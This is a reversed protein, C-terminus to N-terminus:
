DPNVLASLDGDEASLEWAMVGLLGRERAYDVKGQISEADDYSIVVRQSESVLYPVGADADWYRTWGSAGVYHDRLDEYDFVGSEWTGDPLGTFHQGLGEAGGYGRGYYPLGLTLKEAPVGADLYAQVADDVSLGDSAYLPANHGTTSEWGGHLDYTMLNIWDLPGALDPIDMNEITTPGAPAAITLLHGVGALDLQDRVRHLLLTYNEKDAARGADLGGSVPYEWDIDLGDFGHLLMFDVCSEAFLQRGSESAALESFPESLTWGGVSLLTKLDPRSAKLDELQQINGGDKYLAAWSDNFACQGDTVQAFAYNLHTVEPPIDAVGFAREYVGWEVFYAVYVLERDSDADADSDSDADAEPPGSDEAPVPHVECGLLLWLM